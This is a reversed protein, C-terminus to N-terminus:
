QRAEAASVRKQGSPKRPALVIEPEGEGAARLRRQLRERMVASVEAHSQQGILNNLEYPDALLDFLCDETYSASRNERTAPATVSYKWRQTRVARGNQSESIQVYVDDPWGACERRTLPLISRGDLGEPVPLSCADLLTPPLDILSVLEPLRGGATFPGGTLALPIRISSEHASRKYESNRTKFHCGHDTTFLVITNEALGLSKLADQVRGLAEDLRRVMGYYGPLHQPATGHLARLDPPCWPDLYREAYGDPAPYDDRHNQFHPELFSLFLFFPEAQHRDLFRIGADALADIRYGPLKVRHNGADFLVCDYADSTFELVNSALWEQYGGRDEAPVATGTTGCLHWKGIYGTRYGAAGFHHALTRATRPLAGANTECGLRTAFLGTQLCARAPLCVPQCTFANAAHTGHTALRDFNPTLGMPNGHVGTTDWRQQDTFFVVVNPRKDNSGM